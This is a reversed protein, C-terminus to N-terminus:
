NELKLAVLKKVLALDKAEHVEIRVATGEAYRKAQSISKLVQTPFKSQQAAKVAKDGLAFSARFGGRYPSLYVINRKKRQLRLSWGTKISYSNWERVDLNSEKALDALLQDWLAKAAGLEAALEPDTPKEPKGVFANPLM